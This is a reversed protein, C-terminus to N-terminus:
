GLCLTKGDAFADQEAHQRLVQGDGFSELQGAIYAEFLDLAAGRRILLRGLFDLFGGFSRTKPYM